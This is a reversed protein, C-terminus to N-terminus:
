PILNERCCRGVFCPFRQLIICWRGSRINQADLYQRSRTEICEDRFYVPSSAATM